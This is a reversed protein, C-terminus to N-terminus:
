VSTLITLHLWSTSEGNEYMDRCLIQGSCVALYKRFQGKRWEFHCVDSQCLGPPITLTRTNEVFDFVNRLEDTHSAKVEHDRADSIFLVKGFKFSSRKVRLLVVFFVLQIEVRDIVGHGLLRQSIVRLCRSKRVYYKCVELRPNNFQHDLSFKDNATFLQEFIHPRLVFRYLRLINHERM